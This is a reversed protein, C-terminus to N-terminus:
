EAPPSPWPIVHLVFVGLGILAFPVLAMPISWRRDRLALKSSVMVCFTPILLFAAILGVGIAVGTYDIRMPDFYRSMMFILLGYGAMALSAVSALTNLVVVLTWM